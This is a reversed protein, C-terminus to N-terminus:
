KKVRQPGYIRRKRYPYFHELVDVYLYNGAQLPGSYSNKIAFRLEWEEGFEEEHIQKVKNKVMGFVRATFKGTM